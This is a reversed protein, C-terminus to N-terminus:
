YSWNGNRKTKKFSITYLILSFIHSFNNEQLTPCNVPLGVAVGQEKLHLIIYTMKKRVLFYYFNCCLNKGRQTVVCTREELDLFM